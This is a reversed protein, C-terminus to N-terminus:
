ITFRKVHQLAVDFQQQKKLPVPSLIGGSGRRVIFFAGTRQSVRHELDPVQV